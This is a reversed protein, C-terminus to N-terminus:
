WQNSLKDFRSRNRCFLDGCLWLPGLFKSNDFSLKLIHRQLKVFYVAMNDPLPMIWNNISNNRIKHMSFDSKQTEKLLLASDMQSLPSASVTDGIRHQRIQDEIDMLSSSLKLNLQFITKRNIEQLNGINKEWAPLLTWFPSFLSLM